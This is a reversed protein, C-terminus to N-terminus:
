GTVATGDLKSLTRAWMEGAQEGFLEHATHFLQTLHASDGAVAATQVQRAWDAETMTVRGTDVTVSSEPWM